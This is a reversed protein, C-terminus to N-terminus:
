ANIADCRGKGAPEQVKLDNNMKEKRYSAAM